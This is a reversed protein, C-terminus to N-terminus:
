FLFELMKWRLSKLKSISNHEKLSFFSDYSNSTCIVDVSTPVMTSQIKRLIFPIKLSICYKITQVETAAFSHFIISFTIRAKIRCYSCFLSHIIKILFEGRTKSVRLVKSYILTNRTLGFVNKFSSQYFLTGLEQRTITGDSNIDFEAFAEKFENVQEDPIEVDDIKMEGSESM